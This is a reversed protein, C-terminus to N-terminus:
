ASIFGVDDVNKRAAYGCCDGANWTRRLGDPYLVVIGENEALQDWGYAKEAQKGSGFGGHLMVVMPAEGPGVASKPVYIRFTRRRGDHRISWTSTGLPLTSVARIDPPTAALSHHTLLVGGAAVPLMLIVLAINVFWRGVVISEM